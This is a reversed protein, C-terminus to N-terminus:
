SASSAWARWLDAALDAIEAASRSETDVTAHAASRYLDSRAAELSRLRDLVSGGDLLPRSDRGVTDMRAAATEPTVGLWVVFARALRERNEERGLIGGGCAIVIGEVELARALTRAEIARFADEGRTRILDAIAVGEDREIREDLDVPRLGLRAALLPAM